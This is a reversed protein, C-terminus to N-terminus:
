GVMAEVAEHDRIDVEIGLATGGAAEIEAVTSDATMDKTEAESENMRTRAYDPGQIIRARTGFPSGFQASFFRGSSGSSRFIPLWKRCNTRVRDPRIPEVM